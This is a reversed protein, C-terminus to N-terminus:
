ILQCMLFSAKDISLWKFFDHEYRSFQGQGGGTIFFGCVLEYKNLLTDYRQLKEALQCSFQYTHITNDYLHQFYKLLLAFGM